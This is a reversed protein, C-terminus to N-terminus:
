EASKKSRFFDFTLINFVFSLTGGDIGYLLGASFMRDRRGYYTNGISLPTLRLSLYREGVPDSGKFDFTQLFGGSLFVNFYSTERSGLIPITADAGLLCVRLPDPTVELVFHPELELRRSLGVIAGGRAYLGPRLGAERYDASGFSQAAGSLGFDLSEATGPATLALVSVLASLTM